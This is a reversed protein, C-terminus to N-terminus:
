FVEKLQWGNEVGQHQVKVHGTLRIAKIYSRRPDEDPKAKEM